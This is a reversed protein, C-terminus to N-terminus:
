LLWSVVLVRIFDLVGFRSGFEALFFTALIIICLARVADEQWVTPQLDHFILGILFSIPWLDAILVNSSSVRTSRLLLSL